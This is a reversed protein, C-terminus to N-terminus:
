LKYYYFVQMGDKHQFVLHLSFMGRSMYEWDPLSPMLESYSIPSSHLLLPQIQSCVGPCPLSKNVKLLLNLSFYLCKGMSKWVIAGTKGGQQGNSLICTQTVEVDPKVRRVQLSCHTRKRKIPQVSTISKKPRFKRQKERVSNGQPSAASQYERTIVVSVAFSCTPALDLILVQVSLGINGWFSWVLM